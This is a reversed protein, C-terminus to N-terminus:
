FLWYWCLFDNVSFYATKKYWFDLPPVFNFAFTIAMALWFPPTPLVVVQALKPM